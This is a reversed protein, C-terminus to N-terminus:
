TDEGPEIDSKKVAGARRYDSNGARPSTLDQPTEVAASGEAGERRRRKVGAARRRRETAAERKREFAAVREPDHLGDGSCPGCAM